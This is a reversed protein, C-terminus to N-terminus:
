RRFKENLQRHRLSLQCVRPHNGIPMAAALYNELLKGFRAFMAMGGFRQLDIGTADFSHDTKAALAIIFVSVVHDFAHPQKSLSKAFGLLVGGIKAIEPITVLRLPIEHLQKVPSAHRAAASANNPLPSLRDNTAISV